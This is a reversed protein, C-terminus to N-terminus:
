HPPRPQESTILPMPQGWRRGWSERAARQHPKHTLSRHALPSLSPLRRKQSDGAEGFLDEEFNSDDGTDAVEGFLSEEDTVISSGDGSDAFAATTFALVTIIFLLYASYRAM